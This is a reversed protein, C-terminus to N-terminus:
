FMSLFSPEVRNNKAKNRKKITWIGKTLSIRNLDL